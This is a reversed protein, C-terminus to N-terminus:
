GFTPGKHTIRDISVLISYNKDIKSKIKQNKQVVLKLFQGRSHKKEQQISIFEEFKHIM